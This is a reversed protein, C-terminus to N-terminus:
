QPLGQSESLGLMKARLRRKAETLRQAEHNKCPCTGPNGPCIFYGGM